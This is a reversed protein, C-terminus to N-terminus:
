IERSKTCNDTEGLFVAFRKAIGIRERISSYM